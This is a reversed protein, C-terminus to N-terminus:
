QRSFVTQKYTKFMMNVKFWILTIPGHHLFTISTRPESNHDSTCTSVDDRPPMGKCDFTLLQRKVFYSLDAKFITSDM